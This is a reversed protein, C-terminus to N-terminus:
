ADPLYPHRDPRRQRQPADSLLHIAEAHARVADHNFTIGPLANELRSLLHKVIRATSAGPMEESLQAVLGEVVAPISARRPPPATQAPVHSPLREQPVPVIEPVVMGGWAIGGAAGGEGRALSDAGGRYPDEDAAADRVLLIREGLCPLGGASPIGRACRIRPASRRGCRWLSMSM